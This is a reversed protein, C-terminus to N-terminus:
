GKGQVLSGFLTLATASEIKVGVFTGALSGPGEFIVIEEGATRGSLREGGKKEHGDVLVRVTKGAFARNHALSAEEQVALLDNNRRKKAAIPVDDRMHAAATGERPSYKFIFCNKYRVRKLLDVTEQFDAETEGPFGVIFDGAISVDPVMERVLDTKKLYEDRTYGRRMAALVRDSGAQPPLHLYGCVKPLDRMAAFVVEGTDRPHSTVFKVWEIGGIREVNELLRPLGNRVGQDRGWATVNQGLLTVERVGDDALMRIEDLIEVEPRSAQPGRVYPVICYACYNDCGRMVSVFAQAHSSRAAPRRLPYAVGGEGVYAGQAVFAKEVLALCEGIRRTGVVLDIQPYRSRLEGGLREAMCGAVVVIVEPRRAKLLKLRGIHSLVKNEAHERVSCTNCIIVDADDETSAGAFGASAFQGQLVESDLVNM